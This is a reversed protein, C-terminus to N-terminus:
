FDSFHKDKVNVNEDKSEKPNAIIVTMIIKMRTLYNASSREAKGIKNEHMKQKELAFYSSSLHISFLDCVFLSHRLRSNRVTLIYLLKWM